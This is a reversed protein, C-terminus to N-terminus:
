VGDSSTPGSYYCLNTTKHPRQSEITTIICGCAEVNQSLSAVQLNANTSQPLTASCIIAVVLYVTTPYIIQSLINSHSLPYMSTLSKIIKSLTIASLVPTYACLQIACSAGIGRRIINGREVYAVCKVTPERGMLFATKEM